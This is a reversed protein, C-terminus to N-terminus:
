GRIRIAIERNELGDVPLEPQLELQLLMRHGDNDDVVQLPRGRFVLRKSAMQSTKGVGGPRPNGRGARLARTGDDAVLPFHKLTFHTAMLLRNKTGAHARASM